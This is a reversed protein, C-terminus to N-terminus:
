IISRLLLVKEMGGFDTQIAYKGEVIKGRKDLLFTLINLALLLRNKDHFCCYFINIEAQIM